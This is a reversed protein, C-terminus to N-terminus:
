VHARGIKTEAREAVDAAAGTRAVDAALRAADADLRATVADPGELAATELGATDETPAGIRAGYVAAAKGIAARHHDLTRRLEKAGDILKKQVNEYLQTGFVRQLVARRDDPRARLFTAFKGQPLLVTQTFQDRTLGTLLPIEVGVEQTRTSRVEGAEGGALVAELDDPSLKWLRVQQNQTTTGAGRQKPREYKPQRWIRFDGAGTSFVLDVYPEVEPAAHASHLREDSAESNALGGYLAFTIADLLTSKGSGTPGEILFLGGVGLADLDISCEDPFPGIGRLRLRHLQM